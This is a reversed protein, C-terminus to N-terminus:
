SVRGKVNQRNSGFPYLRALFPVLIGFLRAVTVAGHYIVMGPAHPLRQTQPDPVLDRKHRGLAAPQHSAPHRRAEEVPIHPIQLVPRSGSSRSRSSRPSHGRREVGVYEQVRQNGAGRKGLGGALGEVPDPSGTPQRTSASKRM